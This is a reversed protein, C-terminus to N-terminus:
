RANYKSCKESLKRFKKRNKIHLAAAKNEDIFLQLNQKLREKEKIVNKYNETLDNLEM